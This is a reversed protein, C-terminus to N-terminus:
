ELAPYRFFLNNLASISAQANELVSTGYSPIASFTLEEGEIPDWRLLETVTIGLEEMLSASSPLSSSTPVTGDNTHHESRRTSLPASYLASPASTSLLSNGQHSGGAITDAVNDSIPGRQQQHQEQQVLELQPGGLLRPESVPSSMNAIVSDLRRGYAVKVEIELLKQFRPRIGYLMYGYQDVAWQVMEVMTIARELALMIEDCEAELDHMSSPRVPPPSSPTTTTTSTSAPRAALPSMPPHMPRSFFQGQDTDWAGDYNQQSHAQGEQQELDRYREQDGGRMGIDMSMRTGASHVPHQPPHHRGTEFMEETDMETDTVANVDIDTDARSSSVGYAEGHHYTGRMATSLTPPASTSLQAASSFSSSSHTSRGTTALHSAHIELMRRIQERTKILVGTPADGGRRVWDLLGQNGGSGAAGLGSSMEGQRLAASDTKGSSGTLHWDSVARYIVNKLDIMMEGLQAAYRTRQPNSKVDRDQFPIKAM